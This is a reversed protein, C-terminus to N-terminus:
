IRGAGHCIRRRSGRGASIRRIRQMEYNIWRRKRTKPCFSSAPLPPTTSLAPPIYSAEPWSKTLELKKVAFSRADVAADTIAGLRVGETSVARILMSRPKMRLREGKDDTIVSDKGLVCIHEASIFRVGRFAGDIWVGDLVTFSDSVCGQLVRGICKTDCIVKLGRLSKLWVM